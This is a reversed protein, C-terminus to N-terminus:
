LSRPPLGACVVWVAYFNFFVVNLEQCIYRYLQNWNETIPHVGNQCVQKVESGEKFWDESLGTVIKKVAIFKICVNQIYSHTEM